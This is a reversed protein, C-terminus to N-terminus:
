VIPEALQFMIPATDRVSPRNCLFAEYRKLNPYLERWPRILPDKQQWADVMGNGSAVDQMGLVSITSLDALGFQDAFFYRRDGLRRDLERM